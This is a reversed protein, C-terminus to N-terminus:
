CHRRMPSMNFNVPAEFGEEPETMNLPPFQPLSATAQRQSSSANDRWRQEMPSRHINLLSQHSQTTTPTAAGPRGELTVSTRKPTGCRAVQEFFARKEKVSGCPPAESELTSDQDIRPTPPLDGTSLCKSLGGPSLAGPSLSGPLPRFAPRTLSNTRMGASGVPSKAAWSGVPRPASANPAPRGTSSAPPQPPQRLSNQRATDISATSHVSSQSNLPADGAALTMDSLALSSTVSNGGFLPTTEATSPFLRRRTEDAAAQSASSATTAQAMRSAQLKLEEIEKEKDQLRREYRTRLQTSENMCDSREQQARTVQERLAHVEAEAHRAESSRADLRAKLDENQRQFEAAEKQKVAESEALKARLQQIEQARDEAIASMTRYEAQLSALAAATDSGAVATQSSVRRNPSAVMRNGHHLADDLELGNDCKSTVTTEPRRDAEEPVMSLCRRDTNDPSQTPQLGSSPELMLDEIERVCSGPFWGTCDEGEKHGGWWGSDDQELVFVIDNLRLELQTEDTAYHPKVVVTKMFQFEATEAMTTVRQWLPRRHRTFL